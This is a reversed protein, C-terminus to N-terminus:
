SASASGSAPETRRAPRSGTRHSLAIRSGTGRGRRQRCPVPAEDLNRDAPRLPLGAPQRVGGRVPRDLLPQRGPRHHLRHRRLAPPPLRARDGPVHLPPHRVLDRVIRTAACGPRLQDGGRHVPVLAAASWLVYPYTLLLSIFENVPSANVSMAYGFTTLLGHACLLWIATFGVWRHADTIRDQGFIQDLWPSRSMLILQILVLYTGFLASIEGAATLTGALTSLEHLGGHRVWMGLILVGNGILLAYIDNATVPWIRPVPVRRVKRPQTATRVSNRNAYTSDMSHDRSGTHSSSKRATLAAGKEPM